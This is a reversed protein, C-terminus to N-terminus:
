AEEKDFNPETPVRETGLWQAPGAPSPGSPNPPTAVAITTPEEAGVPSAGVAKVLVSALLALAGGSTCTPAPATPGQGRGASAQAVRRRLAAM